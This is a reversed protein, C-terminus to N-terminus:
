AGVFMGCSAQVDFGVRPVIRSGPQACARELKAFQRMIIHDAPERGQLPSYPNYRVLNFRADLGSDIIALCVEDITQDDDNQGEIFAWHLVVDGGTEKQWDRLRNLAIWPDAAKPLWRRRFDNNMSYLSYYISTGLPDRGLIDILPINEIERPYITSLNFRGEVGHGQAGVSLTTRLRKWDQRVVPNLFPEGRAMFNFNVRHTIPPAAEIAHNLVTRAQVVYDLFSAPQMMTQGSQTLHCMRCARDCGSHSSLYCIFYSPERQVFRAEFAGGDTRHVFNVSADETSRLTEFHM